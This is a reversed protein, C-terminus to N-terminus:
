KTRLARLALQVKHQHVGVVTGDLGPSCFARCVFHTVFKRVKLRPICNKRRRANM